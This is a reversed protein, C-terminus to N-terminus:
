KRSKQINFKAVALAGMVGTNKGLGSPLIECADYLFSLCHRKASEKVKSFFVEGILSVGGGIVLVEPNYLSILNAATIGAYFFAEDLIRISVADGKTSADYVEKPTLAEYDGLITEEGREVAEQARKSIATGSALAEVDGYLGCNCQIASKPEIIMHGPEFANGTSGEQLRGDVIAAGGVGTSITLYILEKKGRGQGFLFEGLAAASADNELACPCSLLEKIPKLIDYNEFPLNYARLIIGEKKNIIGPTGIGASIVDNIDAGTKNLLERISDLIREVVKEQGEGAETAISVENLINGEPDSIASSIKTGGLDVGILYKM